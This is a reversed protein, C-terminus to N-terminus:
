YTYTSNKYLPQKAQLTFPDQINKENAKPLKQYSQKNQKTKLSM